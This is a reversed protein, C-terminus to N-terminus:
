VSKLRFRQYRPTAHLCPVHLLHTTHCQPRHSHTVSPVSGPCGPESQPNQDQVCSRPPCTTWRSAPPVPSGARIRRPFPCQAVAQLLEPVRGPSM